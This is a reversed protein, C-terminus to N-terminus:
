WMAGQMLVYFFVNDQGLFQYIRADPDHWFDTYREKSVGRRQLAVQSFSIPAILSDPWVYLTKGALDPDNGPLPVGWAIDRTISRYAWEDVLETAIDAATLATRAAELDHKNGFQLVLQGGAAYKTKHK